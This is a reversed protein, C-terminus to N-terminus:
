PVRIKEGPSVPKGFVPVDDVWSFSQIRVDRDWGSGKARAAHYVIWWSDKSPINVFSAHGPGFVDGTKAFVPGTKVWADKNMIDGNKCTIRGLCYDDTWSGSASYIIHITNNQILVEPGENITPNGNTEWSESPCSIEVREGDITYPNKMKALYLCQTVNTKGPWGSWVFYLQNRYEFATGDIAWYDTLASLKGKFNFTGKLPNVPDSGGELVYMRHYQNDSSDAAFYVYWKGRLYHLEPAWIEYTYESKVPPIFITNKKKKLITHLSDSFSVFIRGNESGCYWFKNGATIVWPDAGKGLPNTFTKDITESNPAQAM